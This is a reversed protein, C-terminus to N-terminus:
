QNVLKGTIDVDLTKNALGYADATDTLTIVVAYTTNTATLSKDVYKGDVLAIVDAGKKVDVTYASASVETGNDKVSITLEFNKGTTDKASTLDFSANGSFVPLNSVDRSATMENMDTATIEIRAPVIMTGTSSASLADWAAYSGAGAMGITAATAFALISRKKM